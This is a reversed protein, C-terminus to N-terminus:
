GLPLLMMQYYSRRLTLKRPVYHSQSKKSAIYQVPPRMKLFNLLQFDLDKFSNGLSSESQLCLEHRINRKYGEDM